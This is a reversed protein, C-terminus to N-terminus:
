TKLSYQLLVLLMLSTETSTRITFWLFDQFAIRPGKNRNMPYLQRYYRPLIAVSVAVISRNYPEGSERNSKMSHKVGGKVSRERYHCGSGLGRKEFFISEAIM